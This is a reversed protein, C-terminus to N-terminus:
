LNIIKNDNIFRYYINNFVKYIIVINNMVWVDIVYMIWGNLVFM